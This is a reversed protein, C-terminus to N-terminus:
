GAVACEAGGAESAAVGFDGLTGGHSGHKRAMGRAPGDGLVVLAPQQHRSPRVPQLTEPDLTVDVGLLGRCSGPVRDCVTRPDDLVSGPLGPLLSLSPEISM